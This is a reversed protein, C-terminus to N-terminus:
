KTVIMSGIPDAGATQTGQLRNLRATVSKDPGRTFDKLFDPEFRGVGAALAAIEARGRM